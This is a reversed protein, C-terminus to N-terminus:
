ELASNIQQTLIEDAKECSLIWPKARVIVLLTSGDQHFEAIFGHTAIIGTPADEVHVGNAALAARLKQWGDPPLTFNISFPLSLSM